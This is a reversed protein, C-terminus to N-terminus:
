QQQPAEPGAGTAALGDMSWGNCCPKARWGNSDSKSWEVIGSLFDKVCAPDRVTYRARTPKARTSM